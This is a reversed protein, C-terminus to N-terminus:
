YKHPFLRQPHKLTDSAALLRPNAQQFFTNWHERREATIDGVFVGQLDLYVGNKMKFITSPHRQRCITGQHSTRQQYKLMEGKSGPQPLLLMGPSPLNVWPSPSQRTGCLSCADPSWAAAPERQEGPDPSCCLLHHTEESARTKRVFITANLVKDKM